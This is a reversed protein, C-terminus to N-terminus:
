IVIGGNVGFIQGTIFRSKESALYVTMNAIDIPMGIINLPTENKIAELDNESLKSLMDTMIVGPSICNVRIGSPAVEKALAKTFGIVAAKTASYVVECSAGTQGWISSINIISGSKEKIMYELVAKSCNFVGKVNIGFLKDFQEDTTDTILGDIAIAANNVLLDIHKFKSIIDKFTNYVSSYNSVDCQYCLCTRGIKEVQKTTENAKKVNENFLVAIDYGDKALELSIAEGIGRSGGTVIATKNM